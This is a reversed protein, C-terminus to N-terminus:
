VWQKLKKEMRKKKEEAEKLAAQDEQHIIHARKLLVNIVHTITAREEDIMQKMMSLVEDIEASEEAVQKKSCVPREGEKGFILPDCLGEGVVKALALGAVSRYM